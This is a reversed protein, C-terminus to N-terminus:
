GGGAVIFSDSGSDEKITLEDSKPRGRAQRGLSYAFIGAHTLPEVILPVELLPDLDVLGTFTLVKLALYYLMFPVAVLPFLLFPSHKKPRLRLYALLYALLLLLALFNPLIFASIYIVYDSLTREAVVRWCSSESQTDDLNAVVAILLSAAM